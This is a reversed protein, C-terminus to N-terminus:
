KISILADIRELALKSDTVKKTHSGASVYKHLNPIEGSTDDNVLIKWAKLLEERKKESLYHCYDEYAAKHKTEANILIRAPDHQLSELAVIEDTFAKRFDSNASELASEKVRSKSLLHSAFATILSGVLAGLSFVGFTFMILAVGGFGARVQVERYDDTDDDM